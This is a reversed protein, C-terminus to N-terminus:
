SGQAQAPDDEVGLTHTTSSRAITAPDPATGLWRDAATRSVGLWHQESKFHHLRHARVLRRYATLPPCWRIHCLYHVWEYHLASWFFVTLTTLAVPRPLVAFALAPWLVSGVVITRLPVFVQDVRWPDRHHARHERADHLDVRRGLVTRPRFHLIHVHILWELLPWGGVIAVLVALDAWGPAGHGARLSTWLAAHAALALPSTHRFFTAIAPAARAPTDAATASM